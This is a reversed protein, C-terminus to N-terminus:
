MEIGHSASEPSCAKQAYERLLAVYQKYQSFTVSPPTQHDVSPIFGGKKMAPLLREFEARMANEGDSMCMKDFHGLFLFGPFEARLADIDVGAQRELPLVGEIGARIFWPVARSIDGDSDLIVRIGAERFCPVMQRYYPLLFADFMEESIMPGLNYSMDEAFTVFDPTLVKQIQSMVRLNFACLDQNIRKLLEPEDYFSYLHPEIGLLKRPWWFPGNLTVWVIAEGHKQLRAAHLLRAEDIPVPDPYLTPLIAEYESVSSIIPAGHAAPKPTADTEPDIWFQMHLDLGLQCQLAEGETLPLKQEIVLGQKKWAELTKDWWVAWELVPLRDAPEFSFCRHFRERPTM